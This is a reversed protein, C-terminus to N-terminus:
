LQPQHASQFCLQQQKYRRSSDEVHWTQRWMKSREVLGWRKQWDRSNGVEARQPLSQGIKLRTKWRGMPQGPRIYRSKKRALESLRLQWWELSWWQGGIQHQTSFSALHDSSSLHPIIMTTIKTKRPKEHWWNTFEASEWRIMTISKGKETHPTKTLWPLLM